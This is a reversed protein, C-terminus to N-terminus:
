NLSWGSLISRRWSRWIEVKVDRSDIEDFKMCPHLKLFFAAYAVYFKIKSRLGGWFSGRGGCGFSVSNIVILAHTEWAPMWCRRGFQIKKSELLLSFYCSIWLYQSLLLELDTQFSIKLRISAWHQEKYSLELSNYELFMAGPLAQTSGRTYRFTFSYNTYVSKRM